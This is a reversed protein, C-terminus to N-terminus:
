QSISKAISQHCTDEKKGKTNGQYLKGKLLNQLNQNFTYVAYTQKLIFLYDKLLKGQSGSLDCEKASLARNLLRMYPSQSPAKKPGFM